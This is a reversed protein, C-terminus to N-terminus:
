PTTPSAQIGSTQPQPAAAPVGPPSASGDTSALGCAPACAYSVVTPGNILSVRDGVQSSVVVQRELITRGRMDTVILNTVGGTKGVVIIHRQDSVTVDAIAPNGVIVDHAPAPLSIRVAQDLPVGLNAAFAAIPAAAFALGLALRLM